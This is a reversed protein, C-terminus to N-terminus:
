PRNNEDFPSELLKELSIVVKNPFDKINDLPKFFYGFPNENIKDLVDQFKNKDENKKKKKM